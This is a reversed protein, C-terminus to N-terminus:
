SFVRKVDIIAFAPDNEVNITGSYTEDFNGLIEEAFAIKKSIDDTNGIEITFRNDYQVAINFKDSFDVMTIKDAISSNRFTALMERAYEHYNEDAFVIQRGAVAYTIKQTKLGIIGPARALLDELNETHELVRLSESLVFYEGCLEFYYAPTEEEVILRVTTPLVRKVTVSKVYPYNMVIAEEVAGSNIAFLNEELTIGSSETILYDEYYSSGEVVIEKTNFFLSVCSVGFIVCLAFGVALYFVRRRTRRARNQEKLREFSDEAVIDAKSMVGDEAYQVNM